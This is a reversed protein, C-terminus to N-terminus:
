INRLIVSSDLDERLTIHDLGMNLEGILVRNNASNLTQIAKNFSEKCIGFLKVPTNDNNDSYM